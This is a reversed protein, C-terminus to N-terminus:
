PTSVLVCFTTSLLSHGIVLQRSWNLLVAAAGIAALFEPIDLEVPLQKMTPPNAKHWGELMQALQPLLEKSNELKTPNAGCEMAIMQKNVTGAAVQKRCGYYGSCVRAAFGTILYISDQFSATSLYPDVGM